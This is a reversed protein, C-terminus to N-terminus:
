RDPRLEAPDDYRWIRKMRSSRLEVVDAVHLRIVRGDAPIGGIPGVQEGSMDYEVIVFDAIAWVNEITTDLQGISKHLARVYGLLAEKGHLAKGRGGPFLEVDDTASSVYDGDRNQELADLSSRVCELDLREALSGSQDFFQPGDGGDAPTAPASAEDASLGADGRGRIASEDFYTHIDIIAGDDNTWLLTLGRFASPEHTPRVRGFPRELVGRFTWEITQTSDTRWVRSVDLQRDDFAGFIDEHARVVAERGRAGGFGPFMFNAGADLMPGLAALNGSSLVRVYAEAAARERATPGGPSADIPRRADFAQWDVPPAPPSVLAASTCGVLLMTVIM